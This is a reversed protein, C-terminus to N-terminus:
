AEPLANGQQRQEAVQQQQNGQQVSLRAGAGVHLLRGDRARWRAGLGGQVRKPTKDFREIFLTVLQKLLMKLYRCLEQKLGSVSRCM